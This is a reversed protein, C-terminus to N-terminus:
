IHQTKMFDQRNSANHKVQLFFRDTPMNRQKLIIMYEDLYDFVCVTGEFTEQRRVPVNVPKQEEEDTGGRETKSAGDTSGMVETITRGPEGDVVTKFFQSITLNVFSSPRMATRLALHFVMRIMLNVLKERGLSKFAYLTRIDSITLEDLSLIHMGQMHRNCFVNNMVAVLGEKPDDFIYENM